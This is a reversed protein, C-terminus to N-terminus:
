IMTFSSDIVQEHGVQNSGHALITVTGPVPDMAPVDHAYQLVIGTSTVDKGVVTPVALNSNGNASNGAQQLTGQQGTTTQALV